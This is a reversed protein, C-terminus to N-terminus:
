RPELETRLATTLLQVLARSIGNPLTDERACSPRAQLESLFDTLLLCCAVFCSLTLAIALLTARDLSSHGIAFYQVWGRLIPNIQKIVEGVPRSRSVPIDRQAQWALGDAEQGEAIVAADM